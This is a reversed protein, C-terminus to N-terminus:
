VWNLAAFSVHLRKWRRVAWFVRVTLARGVLVPARGLEVDVLRGDREARAVLQTEQPGVRPCVFIDVVVRLFYIGALEADYWGLAEWLRAVLAM